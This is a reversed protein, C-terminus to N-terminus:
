DGNMVTAINARVDGHMNRDLAIRFALLMEHWDRQKKEYGSKREEDREKEGQLLQKEYSTRKESTVIVADDDTSTDRAVNIDPDHRLWTDLVADSGDNLEQWTNGDCKTKKQAPEAMNAFGPQKLNHVGSQVRYRM